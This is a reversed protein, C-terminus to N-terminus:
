DAARGLFHTLRVMAETDLRCYRRLQTELEQKRLTSTRPDIAEIYGESAETGSQIGQLESYRLDPAVTPTVAKLSWSGRMDPHYYHRKVLPQLDLLREGIRSLPAALDPFWAILREIVQREYATYMLVAGRSGLVRILSEAVRRMPPDGTLDLFDAHRVNGPAVEFHCSWQFPLAEYPRAGAWIPAPPAVTEFDLYYRPYAIEAIERAADPSLEARASQTVTQIRRQQETLRAPPVDRLDRYGEAVLAGLRARSGGLVQVPFDSDAPWCHAIFPCEWPQTCHKGVPVDPENGKLTDKVVGIHETVLPLLRDVADSVDKEILLGRYDGDGAYRFGNNVHAL